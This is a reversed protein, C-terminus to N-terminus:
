LPYGINAGNPTYGCELLHGFDNIRIVNWGGHRGSPVHMLETISCNEISINYTLIPDSSLMGRIGCKLSGSHGVFAISVSMQGDMKQLFESNFMKLMRREGVLPSDGNPASFILPNKAISHLVSETYVVDRPQNEWAGQSLEHLNEDVKITGSFGMTKRLIEATERARLAPSSYLYDIRINERLMRKGLAVAQKKGRENLALSDARGHVINPDFTTEGHRFAYVHLRAQPKTTPM